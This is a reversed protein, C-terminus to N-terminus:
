ITIPLASTTPVSKYLTQLTRSNGAGPEVIIVAGDLDSTYVARSKLVFGSGKGVLRMSKLENEILALEEGDALIIMKRIGTTKIMRKVVFRINKEGIGASVRVTRLKGNFGDSIKEALEFNRSFDSFVVGFDQWDLFKVFDLFNKAEYELDAHVFFRRKSEFEDNKETITLYVTSFYESILDLKFYFRQDLTLDIILNVNNENFKKLSNISFTHDLLMFNASPSFLSKLSSPTLDSYIFLLTSDQFATVLYLSLLAGIM